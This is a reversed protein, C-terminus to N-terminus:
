PCDILTPPIGFLWDVVFTLDVIDAKAGDGNPDAEEDCLMECGTGFLFDVICTLDVIDLDAGDGNIDGRIGVCCGGGGTVFTQWYGHNIGYSASSGYGVAVQGVTGNLSYNTSTGLGGGSGIVYWPIQEGTASSSAQPSLNTTPLTSQSSYHKRSDPTVTTATTTTTTTPTIPQVVTTKKTDRRSDKETEKASITGFLLACVTVLAITKKM